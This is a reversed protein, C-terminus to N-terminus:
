FPIDDDFDSTDPVKPDAKKEGKEGESDSASNSFDPVSSEDLVGFEEFPNDTKREAKEKIILDEGDILVARLYAFNGFSNASEAIKIQKAISGNGVQKEEDMTIDLIAENDRHYVKPRTAWYYPMDYLEGSEKDKGQAKAGVKIVFQKKEEPFPPAFKYKEEFDATKISKVSAKPFREEYDDATDEDVIALVSFEKETDSEYKFSSRFLNVYALHVNELIVGSVKNKDDKFEKM